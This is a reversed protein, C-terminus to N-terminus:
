SKTKFIKGIIIQKKNQYISYKGIIKIQENEKLNIINNTFAIFPIPNNNLIITIKNNSYTISKITGTESTQNNNTYIQTLLILFLTTLFLIKETKM